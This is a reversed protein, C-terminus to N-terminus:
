IPSSSLLEAKDIRKDLASGFIHTITLHDGEDRAM